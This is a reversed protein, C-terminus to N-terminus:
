FRKENLKDLRDLGSPAAVFAGKRPNWRYVSEYRRVYAKPVSQDGCGDDTRQRVERVVVDIVRYPSAPDPRTTFTPTEDREWGCARDSLTSVDDILEFRDRRVLVLLRGSYTQNSNFHESYTILADDGPGLPLKPQDNFSTDKDVGVDVADLLKPRPADDFLLLLTMSQARDPDPGLDAMLVIRSRGGAKIRQDDILGLVVPDPPDGDFSPGGLHRSAKALHGEIQKDAANEVLNPVAQRILDLYTVGPHGPAADAADIITEPASAAAAALPAFAVAALLTMAGRMRAGKGSSRGRLRM